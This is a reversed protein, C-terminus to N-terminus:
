KFEYEDKKKKKKTEKKTNPSMAKGSFVELKLADVNSSNQMHKRDYKMLVEALKM